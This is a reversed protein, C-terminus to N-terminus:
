LAEIEKQSLGTAQEIKAIDVGLLKFNRAVEIKGEKRGEQIGKQRGEYLVDMEFGSMLRYEQRAGENEKIITIMNAIRGTFETTAEGTKIYELFGRLEKNETQSFAAANVIIKSLGDKLEITNDESCRTKFSYVPLGAKLYDFKCIFIIYSDVLESYHCGKDLSSLDIASQYYRMRKALDNKDTTQMEIDYVNGSEDKALIDLRIGKAYSAHEVHRQFDIETIRDVKDSLLINLLTLCIDKNQMVHYFMFDDTITLDDFRKLM